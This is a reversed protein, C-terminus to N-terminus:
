DAGSAQKESKRNIRFVSRIRALLNQPEISATPSSLRERTTSLAQQRHTVIQSIEDALEPRLELIHAFASRDLCHCDVQDIAVVSASRPEGTLLSMEGFLDGPHLTAVQESRGGEAVLRVALTGKVVIYVSDGADGQSVVTEGPAFFIPRLREALFTLESDTLAGFTDTKQLAMRSVQQERNPPPATPQQQLEIKQIIAAVPVGVRALGFYVLTLVDSIQRHQHGPRTVWVYIGYEIHSSHLARIFCNPVPTQAIGEPLSMRLVTEVEEIVTTPLYQYGLQFPILIRRSSTAAKVTSRTLIQNPILLVDSDPTEIATYRTRVKRIWGSGKDTEIFDGRGIENEFQLVIGSVSNMLLDQMSLGIIATVVTSTAILGNVDTGLRSLLRFTVLIYAGAVTLDSLIMHMAWRRVLVYNLFGIVFQVLALEGLAQGLEPLWHQALPVAIVRCLMDLGILVWAVYIRRRESPWLRWILVSCILAAALLRLGVVGIM